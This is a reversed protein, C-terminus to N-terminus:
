IHCFVWGLLRLHLPHSYIMMVMTYHQTHQMQGDDDDDDDDGDDDDDDDDDVDDDDDDGNGGNRLATYTAETRLMGRVGM